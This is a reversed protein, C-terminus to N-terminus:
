RRWNEVRLGPVRSFERFNDTVLTLDLSRAHAAILLDHYGIPKGARELDARLRAYHWDADMEFPLVTTTNLVIEVRDILTSSRKKEAGYRLECAAIISTCIRHVNEPTIRRAVKGSPNSVLDSLTSTDLM